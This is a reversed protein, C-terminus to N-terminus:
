AAGKLTARIDTLEALHWDRFYRYKWDNTMKPTGYYYRRITALGQRHYAYFQEPTM